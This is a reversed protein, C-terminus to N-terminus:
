AESGRPRNVALSLLSLSVLVTLLDIGLLGNAAFALIAVAAGFRVGRAGPVMQIVNVLLLALAAAAAGFTLRNM